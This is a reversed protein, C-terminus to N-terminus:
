RRRVYDVRGASYLSLPDILPGGPNRRGVQPGRRPLVHRQEPRQRPSLHFDALRWPNTRPLRIKRTERGRVESEVRGLPSSTKRGYRGGTVTDSGKVFSTM